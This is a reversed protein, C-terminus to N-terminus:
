AITSHKGKGRCVFMVGGVLSAALSVLYVIFEMSFAVTDEVGLRGFLFVGANERVGIGGFSVPVSAAMAILPIFVLFYGFPVELGLSRGVVHPIVVSLDM